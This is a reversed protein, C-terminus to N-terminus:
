APRILKLGGHPEETGDVVAAHHDCFSFASISYRGDKLARTNLHLQTAPTECAKWACTDLGGDKLKEQLAKRQAILANKASNYLTPM